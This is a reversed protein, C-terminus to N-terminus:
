LPRLRRLGQDPAHPLMASCPPAPPPAQHGNQPRNGRFRLYEPSICMVHLNEFGTDMYTENPGRKKQPGSVQFGKSDLM